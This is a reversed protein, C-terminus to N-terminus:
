KGLDDLTGIADGTELLVTQFPGSEGATDKGVIGPAGTCLKASSLQARSSLVNFYRFYWDCELWMRAVNWDKLSESMKLGSRASFTFLASSKQM